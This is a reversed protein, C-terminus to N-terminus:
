TMFGYNSKDSFHQVTSVLEEKGRESEQLQPPLCTLCLAPTKCSKVWGFSLLPLICPSNQSLTHTNLLPLIHPTNDKQHPCTHKRGIHIFSHISLCHCFTVGGSGVGTLPTKHGTWKGPRVGDATLTAARSHWSSPTPDSPTNKARVGDQASLVPETVPEWFLRAMFICLEEMFLWPPFFHKIYSFRFILLKAM